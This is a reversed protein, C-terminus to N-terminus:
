TTHTHTKISCLHQSSSAQTLQYQKDLKLHPSLNVESILHSTQGFTTRIILDHMTKYATAQSAEKHSPNSVWLENERQMLTRCAVGSLIVPERLFLLNKGKIIIYHEGTDLARFKAYTVQMFGTDFVM